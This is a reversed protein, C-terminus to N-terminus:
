HARKHAIALDLLEIMAVSSAQTFESYQSARILAARASELSDVRMQEMVAASRAQHIVTSLRLTPRKPHCMEEFDFDHAWIADLDSARSLAGLWPAVLGALQMSQYLDRDRVSSADAPSVVPPLTSTIMTFSVCPPRLAIVPAFKLLALM